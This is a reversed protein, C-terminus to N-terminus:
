SANQPGELTQLLRCPHRQILRSWMFRCDPNYVALLPGFKTHRPQTHHSGASRYGIVCIARGVDYPQCRLPEGVKGGGGSGERQRQERLVEEVEREKKATVDFTGTPEKAGKQVWRRRM